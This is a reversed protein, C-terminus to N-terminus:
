WAPGDDPSASARDSSGDRRGPVSQGGDVTLVTGTVAQLHTIVAVFASAAADAMMTRDLASLAAMTEAREPQHAHLEESAPTRVTGFAVANVRVRRRGLPFALSTVLGALGARAASYAPAGFNGVANISSVFTISRDRDDGSGLAPSLHRVTLYQATLNLHVSRSFVDASLELPNHPSIEDALAGGAALVLHAVAADDALRARLAALDDEDTIDAVVGEYTDGAEVPPDLVSPDIDVGVIRHGLGLLAAATARGIGGAAGTVVVTGRRDVAV